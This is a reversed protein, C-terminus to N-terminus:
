TSSATGVGAARGDPVGAGHDRCRRGLQAPVRRQGPREQPRRDRQVPGLQDRRGGREAQQERNAEGRRCRSGHVYAGILGLDARELAIRGAEGLLKERRPRRQRRQADLHVRGLAEIAELRLREIFGANQMPGIRLKAAKVPRCDALIRM